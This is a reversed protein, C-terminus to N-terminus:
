AGSTVNVRVFLGLVDGLTAMEQIDAATAPRFMGPHRPDAAVQVYGIVDTILAGVAQADCGALLRMVAGIAEPNNTAGEPTQFLELLEDVGTVRIAALLRLIFTAMDVPLVEAVTFTKGADRGNTATLTAADTM